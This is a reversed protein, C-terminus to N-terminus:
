KLSNETFRSKPLFSIAELVVVLNRAVIQNLAVDELMLMKASTKAPKEGEQLRTRTQPQPLPQRPHRKGGQATSCLWGPVVSALLYVCNM